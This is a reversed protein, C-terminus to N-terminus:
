LFSNKGYEIYVSVSGGRPDEIYGVRGWSYSAEGGLEFLYCKVQDRLRDSIEFKPFDFSRGVSIDYAVVKGEKLLIGVSTNEEFDPIGWISFSGNELLLNQEYGQFYKDITATTLKNDLIVDNFVIEGIQQNLKM